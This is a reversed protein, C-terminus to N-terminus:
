SSKTSTKIGAPVARHPAEMYSQLLITASVKDILSKDQRQAKRAGSALIAAQAMVSTYREDFLVVPISPFLKVFRATFQNVFRTSESPLGNTQLPLGVVVKIVEERPLYKTLYDWVDKVHLTDLPTAIIGTPDTVSMGIRKQGIDLALIRGM